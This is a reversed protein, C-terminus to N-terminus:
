KLKKKKPSNKDTLFIEMKPILMFIEIKIGLSIYKMFVIEGKLLIM